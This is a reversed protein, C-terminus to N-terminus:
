LEGCMPDLDGCSSSKPSVKTKDSVSEENQQEGREEIEPPMKPDALLLDLPGPTAEYRDLGLWLLLLGALLGLVVVGRRKM